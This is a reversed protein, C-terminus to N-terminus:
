STQRHGSPSFRAPCLVGWRQHVSPGQDLDTVRSRRQRLILGAAVPEAAGDAVGVYSDGGHQADDVLRMRAEHGHRAKGGEAGVRRAAFSERHELLDGLGENRRFPSAFRRADRHKAACRVKGIFLLWLGRSM